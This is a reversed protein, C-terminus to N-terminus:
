RIPDMYLNLYPDLYKIAKKQDRKAIVPWFGSFMPASEPLFTINSDTAKAFIMPFILVSNEYEELILGSNMLAQAVRDRSSLVIAMTKSLKESFYASDIKGKTGFSVAVAM